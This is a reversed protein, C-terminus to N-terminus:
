RHNKKHIISEFTKMYRKKKITISIQRVKEEEQLIVNDFNDISDKCDNVIGGLISIAYKASNVHLTVGYKKQTITALNDKKVLAQFRDKNLYITKSSNRTEWDDSWTKVTETASKM